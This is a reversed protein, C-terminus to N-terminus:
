WNLQLRWSTRTATMRVRRNGGGPSSHQRSTTFRSNGPRGSRSGSTNSAASPFAAIQGSDCGAAPFVSAEDAPRRCCLCGPMSLHLHERIQCAIAAGKEVLKRRHRARLQLARYPPELESEYLGFGAIAARHQTYLDTEDTKNGPDAPVRFQKTAFPHVIRTELGANAFARQPALHDNGTREVVVITDRINHKAQAQRVSEVAVDFCSRQHEVTRPEMLLNGFYDATMWQSRHKAPDVCVIAFRAGGVKKVRPAIVGNPKQLNWKNRPIPKSHSKRRRSSSVKAAM